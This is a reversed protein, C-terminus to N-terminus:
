PSSPIYLTRRSSELSRIEVQGEGELSYVTLMSKWRCESLANLTHMYEAVIEGNNDRSFPTVRVKQGSRFTSFAREIGAAALAVAGKPYGLGCDFLLSNEMPKKIVTTLIDIMYRSEFIGQAKVYDEDHSSVGQPSPVGWLAPGDKGTAWIAYESVTRTNNMYEVQKFVKDAVQLARAGFDSWKDVLRNYASTYLKCNVTVVYSHDPYVIDLVKQVTRVLGSGKSFDHFPKESCFLIHYLTPLFRTTWDSSIFSPVKDNDDRFTGNNFSSESKVMRKPIGLSSTPARSSKRSANSTEVESDSDVIRIIENKRTVDRGKSMKSSPQKSDADEDVLGGLANGSLVADDRPSPTERTTQGGKSIARSQWNNLLGSPKTVQVSVQITEKLRKRPPEISRLAKRTEGKAPKKKRKKVKQQANCPANLRSGVNHPLIWSVPMTEPESGQDESHPPGDDEDQSGEEDVPRVELADDLTGARPEESESDPLDILHRVAIREEVADQAEEDLDLEALALKKEKDLEEVRRLLRAKEALAAAVEASTRKPWPMVPKGPQVVQNIHHPLPSQPAIPKKMKVRPNELTTHVGVKSKKEVPKVIRTAPDEDTDRGKPLGRKQPVSQAHNDPESETGVNSGTTLDTLKDKSAAPQIKRKPLEATPTKRSEPVSPTQSEVAAQRAKNRTSQRRASM